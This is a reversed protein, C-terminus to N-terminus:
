SKCCSRVVRVTDHNLVARKKPAMKDRYPEVKPIAPDKGNSIEGRFNMQGPHFVPIVRFDLKTYKLASKFLVLGYDNEIEDPGYGKDKGLVNDTM